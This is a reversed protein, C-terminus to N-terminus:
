GSVVPPRDAGVAPQEATPQEAIPPVAAQPVATPPVVPAGADAPRPGAPTRPPRRLLRLFASEIREDASAASGRLEHAADGLMGRGQEAVLDRIKPDTTLDDVVVPLIRLRIEPLAGDILRPLTKEVLHPVLGDVIPPVVERQAFAMGGDMSEILFTVAEARGAGITAAGYRRTDRAAAGLRERAMTVPQTVRAAGPLVAFARSARGVARGAPASVALALGRARDAGRRAAGVAVEVGAGVPRQTVQEAVVVALGLVLRSVRRGSVYRCYFRPGSAPPPVVSILEGPRGV